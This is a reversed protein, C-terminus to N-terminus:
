FFVSVENMVESTDPLVGLILKNKLTMTKEDPLIEFNDKLRKELVAYLRTIESTNGLHGLTTMLLRYAPECLPDIDILEKGTELAERYFGKAASLRLMRFLLSTYMKRLESREGAVSVDTSINELFEGRYLSATERAKALAADPNLSDELKKVEEIGCTFIDIDIDTMEMDLRITNRDIILLNGDNNLLKKLRYILTNLNDKRSRETYNKWFLDFIKEKRLGDNRNLILLILLDQIRRRKLFDSTDLQRGDLRIDFRGLTSISLPKERVGYDAEPNDPFLLTKGDATFDYIYEKPKTQLM